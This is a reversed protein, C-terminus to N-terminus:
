VNNEGELDNLLQHTARYCQLTQRASLIVHPTEKPVQGNMCAVFDNYYTKQSKDNTRLIELTKAIESIEFVTKLSTIVM